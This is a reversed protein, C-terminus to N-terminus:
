PRAPLSIGEHALLARKLPTGGSFGGLRGDSRVVRHCPIIIPIPNSSMAQGVARSASPNGALAAVGSYSMVNGAPIKRVIEMVRGQFDSVRIDLAFSWPVFRKRFYASMLWTEADTVERSSVLRVNGMARAIRQATNKAGAGPLAVCCVGRGTWYLRAPGIPPRLEKFFITTDSNM